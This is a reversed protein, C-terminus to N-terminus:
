TVELTSPPHQLDRVLRVEQKSFGLNDYIQDLRANQLRFVLRRVCLVNEVTFLAHYM